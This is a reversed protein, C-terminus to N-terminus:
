RAVGKQLHTQGVACATKSRRATTTLQEPPPVPSMDTCAATFGRRQEIRVAHSKHAKMVLWNIKLRKLQVNLTLNNGLFGWQRRLGM